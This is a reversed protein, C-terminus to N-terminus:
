DRMRKVPRTETRSQERKLWVPLAGAWLASAASQDVVQRERTQRVGGAGSLFQKQKEKKSVKLWSFLFSIATPFSLM